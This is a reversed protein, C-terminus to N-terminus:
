LREQKGVFQVEPRLLIGFKETVREQVEKSFALVEGATAGGYNVLVLTHRPSLGVNGRRYGRQFGAAQILCAASVKVEGTAQPWRWNVCGGSNQVAREVYPFQAAPVLPNKFFSGASNLHEYGDLILLGKRSRIDLVATRMQSPSIDKKGLFYQQLDHHTTLSAGSAALRFSVRTIIHRGSSDTNFTSKRYGFNCETNSFIVIAGTNIDIARVEEVVNEASQGYAGINQVPSAGVTGPIGSLCEVGQWGHDTCFSAFNDWDHGSGAAVIVNGDRMSSELGSIRNHIVLGPFGEDSVLLNSGGGLVFLDLCHDRAFALAELIQHEHYVEAFYRAPGGIKFTTLASLPHDQRITIRSLKV